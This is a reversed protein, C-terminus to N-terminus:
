RQLRLTLHRLLQLLHAPTPFYLSMWNLGEIKDAKSIEIHIM